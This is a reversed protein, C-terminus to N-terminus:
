VLKFPTIKFPGFINKVSTLHRCSKKRRVNVETNGEGWDSKQYYMGLKPGKKRTSISGM